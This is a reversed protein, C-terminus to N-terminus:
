QKRGTVMVRLFDYLLGIAWGLVFTGISEFGSLEFALNKAVLYVSLTLIFACVAGSLIANPRAVTNGLTDSVKEVVKNHIVKSFTRSPASMHTRVENMTSTFSEDRESRSIPGKRREPTALQRENQEKEREISSAEKLVDHRIADVDAEHNKENARELKERAVERREAGIDALAEPNSNIEPSKPKELNSM